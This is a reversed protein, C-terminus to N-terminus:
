AHYKEAETFGCDLAARNMEETGSPARAIVAKEIAQRSVVQTLGVLLGL